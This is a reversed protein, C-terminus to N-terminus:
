DTVMKRKGTTRDKNMSHESSQYGEVSFIKPTVVSTDKNLLEANVFHGGVHACPSKELPQGPGLAFWPDKPKRSNERVVAIGLVM